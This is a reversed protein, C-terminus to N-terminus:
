VIQLLYLKLYETEPVSILVPHDKSAHREEIIRISVGADMAADKLM